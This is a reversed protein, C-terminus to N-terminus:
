SYVEWDTKLLIGCKESIHLLDSSNLLLSVIVTTLLKSNPTHFLRSPHTRMSFSGHQKKIYLTSLTSRAAADISRLPVVQLLLSLHLLPFPSSHSSPLFVFRSFIGFIRFFKSFGSSLPRLIHYVIPAALSCRVLRLSALSFCPESPVSRFFVQFFNSFRKVLSLCLPIIFLSRAALHHLSFCLENFISCCSEHIKIVLTCLSRFNKQIKLGYLYPLDYLYSVRFLYNLM